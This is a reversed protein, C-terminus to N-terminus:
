PVKKLLTLAPKAKGDKLVKDWPNPSDSIKASEAKVPDGTPHFKIVGTELNVEIDGPIKTALIGKIVRTVATKKVLTKGSGM